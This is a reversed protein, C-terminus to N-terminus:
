LFGIGVVEVFECGTDSLEKSGSWGSWFLFQELWRALCDKKNSNIDIVISM